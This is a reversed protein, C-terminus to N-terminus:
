SRWGGFGPSTPNSVGFGFGGTNGAAAGPGAGFGSFGSSQGGFGPSQQSISGFTPTNQTALSGFAATSSNSGFGFGGTTAASTGEGFVKGGTSGLTNSFAAATGFAPSGGFGPSGGFTPPSGFVPAAGFGGTKTPSNFSFGQSAVSGGASFTASPKDGFSTGGFGFAKAGSNGFLNSSNSAGASGFGSSGPSGFPNKNAAEQSPKAGLGSFLGVTSAGGSGAGFLGGSSSAPQQGFVSTSGSQSPNFLSGSTGSAFGAPQGFGFSATTTTSVSASGFAPAAQPFAASQGFVPASSQGFLVGSTSTGSTNSAQGFSFSSASSTCGFLSGASSTATSAAPQGFAPQTGFTPQSFPLTSQSTAPGKWLPAQGFSPQGFGGNGGTAGFASTGFGTSSNASTSVSSSTPQAFPSPAAGSALAQGFVPTSAATVTSQAFASSGAVPQGTLSVTQASETTVPPATTVLVPVQSTPGGAPTSALPSALVTSTFPVTQSSIVSAPIAPAAAGEIKAEATSPITPVPPPLATATTAAPTVTPVQEAASQTTLTQQQSSSSDAPESLPKIPQKVDLGSNIPASPTTTAPAASVLLSQFSAPIASSAGATTSTSQPIGFTFAPKNGSQTFASATSGASALQVNGFLSASTSSTTSPAEGVKAPQPAGAFSFLVPNSPLKVPQAATPTKAVEVKSAEDAQGVRLGSFSGLTEGGSFGQFLGEGPKSSAATTSTVTATTSAATVVSPKSMTPEVVSSSSSSSAPKLSAFSFSGESGLSKGTGGFMYSSAQNSDRATAACGASSSGLASTVPAPTVNSFSFGGAAPSFSVPKNVQSVSPAPAQSASPDSKPIAQAAPKNPASGQWTQPAISSASAPPNKLPAAPAAQRAPVSGVTALVQHIVQAASQPVTPGIVTPITPGPGNNKLEKVNVVQPVTQLTSETLSAAPIQSATQRRMAAVAAKQAATINPAGHKVTKTALMTSDAGQPIVRISQSPAVPTSTAPHLGSQFPLSATGLGPQVSTTRAVAAHKPVRVPTSEPPPTEQREIEKPPPNRNDNDAMDSLSSTSSVDDLDEFFSPALFASRSLNAPALSRVPPTKRKSLFNRLQSQKVPSIKAPLKAQPKTQTDIATQSLTKQMNELEVDFSKTSSDPVNWQSIQNYLRLKQLNEVLQELKPRQQNIIEQHNALSNFLTEREPIIIGKKKQKEELYQDWELDLVDNVDQVANKVYQNLRRIEQMQTESKPDLPKKYLLQLYKPDQKLKNRQQVDEISAFGELNKIKMASFEGRLSETTEKIELFFSHLGDSETRLQRKEEESGVQFCARSTRAKLDDLEKQFHAIEERIGNLISDSEKTVKAQNELAVSRQPQPPTIKTAPPNVRVTKQVSAISVSSPAQPAEVAFPRNPQVSAQSPIVTPQSKVPVTANPKSTATFSLAAASSITAPPPTDSANFKDKLNVKVTSPAPTFGPATAAQVTVPTALSFPRTGMAPQFSMAPPASVKATNSSVMAAGFPFSSPASANAANNASSFSFAPLSPPQLSGAAPGAPQFISTAAAAPQSTTKTPTAAPALSAPPNLVPTPAGSSATSLGFPYPPPAASRPAASAPPAPASVSTLPAPPTSVATGGVVKMEREGELSLQEPSTTLPKVGQNLNVVHFPCLVGDTSLLLLVPVPPLIQSESIFVELQCTYDLAVGMPLTDDNNETMPMEARSSDELLWQEWGVQDPPRAIVGVDVSAASAALLIEWDEIYNLFFHHQRESCISYCTETFNLFREARKDEKKPLTVIVLQPSAELSGDAAAYVVTFVYTSLWLVDLVKVPNDSDYFSPCPIVKKEQLSPLYQVVTGNQKGVALQKGKPSWCVSTVGLTAPLNAFVSVTDTVQLVSISGDSLCVAVMSPLTPNWQLDTVSSSPDRLLKCSAFPMKNQKSENLLTRVDYFSVSSGQEASTMCVSLTLNDSSLALHHIPANMPVHIGQPGVVTKNANEKPKVTVLIDKTHFVKLGMFGGVFLLGYKNSIVLLNSRQKPLDAPYDFLRVKKLQRFQFDKTEREPPLDTDDEM